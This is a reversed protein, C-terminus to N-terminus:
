PVAIIVTAPVVDIRLEGDRWRAVRGNITTKGPANNSYPWPLVAGGSPLRTGQEITLGLQRADRRLSYSLEGSPTRLGALAIGEGEFWRTPVGAALVLADDEDRSYAFMDLTSRLFDSAVWAHPLDGVFFPKRPERSVVEAWQNWAPPARDDFFYQLVEYARERWGLRTLAGVNRWEYPTYDKWTQPGDRRTVFHRWYKEFTNRLLDQPLTHQEGTPALAITTSTPDFDGLEASGPLYDINHQKVAARLSAALDARFEDRAARMRAIQKDDGLVEALEAADKYGRLAWFNDWYSHVPKSSYGEHSISVPMMGYFAPDRARNAETRESARLKEMYDFAAVVHPWYERLFVEDRTYRWYEAIAFILEGHSDNEPVPDSGRDDVCCPVMGDKFQYPAFYAIYDRVVEPRGMRLLGEAIMAGDRIWSRAYSRTGPQLRPGIRSILLHATATRLTDVVPQGEAPVRLSLQGLKDRWLAAVTDQMNRADCTPSFEPFDGTMPVLYSFERTEGPALSVSQVFAGSALGTPDDGSDDRANKDDLRTVELGEDFRTAFTMAGSQLAQVRPRGDVLAREGEFKLRTIRSVGGPTTLFQTMPNVQFPRVALVFRLSKAVSGRNSLRYRAVLQSREPTGQAFATIALAVDEHTWQVSPIPLYGDLLSQTPAANAWSILTDGDRVFPELTFGGRAVELAGGEGILGQETGGDIGILTWYNQERLFGRPLVGRPLDRAVSAVFDNPTAAFDLPQIRAERLEVAEGGMELVRLRLYRASSEPLAIWARGGRGTEFTRALRWHRADDALEIAYRSAAGDEAWDLVLGGFDRPKGLDLVLEPLRRARKARWATTLDDDVALEAAGDRMVANANAKAVLPSNDVPPLPTLTLQDFCVSGKGGVNNYITFQLRATHQPFPSPDPGWARSVHRRQFSVTTWERPVAYHQRQVWWVSDGSADIFKFQFENAPANGRLHLDLRYNEPFELPLDRELSAHGSVGHYGYDLCMAGGQEGPVARLAGSVQNSAMARWGEEPEFNALVQTPAQAHVSPLVFVALLGLSALGVRVIM